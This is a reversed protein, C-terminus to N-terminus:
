PRVWMGDVEHVFQEIQRDTADTLDYDQKLSSGFFFAVTQYMRAPVGGRYEKVIEYCNNGTQRNILKMLVRGQYVSLNSLPKTFEAKLEKERTKIYAKREKKSKMNAMAATMENLLAGAKKAYPYCVYVANRLRDYERKYRAFEEPTMNTVWAMDLQQYPMWEEAYYIVSTFVTDNKGWNQPPLGPQQQAFGSVALVFVLCFLIFSPRYARPFQMM